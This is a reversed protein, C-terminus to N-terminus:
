GSIILNVIVVIDLVNVQSDGNVDSVCLEYETFESQNVISSIIGVLDLVDTFGDGNADGNANECASTSCVDCSGFCSTELNVTPQNVILIRDNFQNYACEGELEEWGGEDWETYYGNRFKYYYDGYPLSITNTWIDDNDNDYLEVGSPGLLAGAGSAFVGTAATDVGNMDVSFTVDSYILDGCEESCSGFCVSNITSDTNPVTFSRNLDQGFGCTDPVDEIGFDGCNAFKYEVFSGPELVKQIEWINDNNCDLLEDEWWNFYNFTAGIHAGCLGDGGGIEENSMDVQFTVYVENESKCSNFYIPELVTDEYPVTLYRNGAGEDCGQITDCVEIDNEIFADSGECNAFKYEIDTGALLSRTVSWIGSNGTEQLIIPLDVIDWQFPVQFSGVIYMDCQEDFGSDNNSTDVQFTINVYESQPCELNCTGFCVPDLITDQNPTTLIRNTYVGTTNTCESGPELDELEWGCNGFKYEYEVGTNLTIETSWINNQGEELTYTWSWGNWGGALTPPCAPNINQNSMDVQFTINVNEPESFQINEAKLEDLILVGTASDGSVGAPNTVFFEIAFGKIADLNLIGDGPIGNWGTNNFGFDYPLSQDPINTGTLPIEVKNWGPSQDLMDFHFSYFYEVDLDSYVNNDLSTSIDYLVFRIEARDEPSAPIENYYWFSLANFDSLDYVSNPDPHFHSLKTFGGWDESNHISYDFQIAGNQDHSISSESYNAYGLGSEGTLDLTWYNENFDLESDFSNIILEQSLIPFILLIFLLSKM